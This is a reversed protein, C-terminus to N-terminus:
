LLVWYHDRGFFNLLDQLNGCKHTEILLSESTARATSQASKVVLTSSAVFWKATPTAARFFVEIRWRKVYTLLVDKSVDYRNSILLNLAETLPPSKERNPRRRM